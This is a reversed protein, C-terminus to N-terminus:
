PISVYRGAAEVHMALDAHAQLAEPLLMQEGLPGSRSLAVGFLMSEECLNTPQVRSIERFLTTQSDVHTGETAMHLICDNVGNRLTYQKQKKSRLRELVIALM